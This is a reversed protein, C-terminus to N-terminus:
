KLGGLKQCQEWCTEKESLGNTCEKECYKICDYVVYVLSGNTLQIDKAGTVNITITKDKPSIFITACLFILLLLVAVGLVKWNHETPEKM